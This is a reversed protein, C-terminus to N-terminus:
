LQSSHMGRFLFIDTASLLLVKALLVGWVNSAHKDFFDGLFHNQRIM